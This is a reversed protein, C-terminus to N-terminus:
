HNSYSSFSGWNEQRAFQPYTSLFNVIINARDLKPYQDFLSRDGYRIATLALPLERRFIENRKASANQNYEGKEIYLYLYFYFCEGNTIWEGLVEDRMKTNVKDWAFENGITLFLDGTDDSHTLTYRRPIVPKMTTMGNRFQVFLKEPYFKGLSDVGNMKKVIHLYLGILYNFTMHILNKYLPKHKLPFTNFM